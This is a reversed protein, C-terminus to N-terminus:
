QQNHKQRLLRKVEEYSTVPVLWTKDKPRYTRGTIARVSEVLNPDYPFKIAFKDGELTVSKV